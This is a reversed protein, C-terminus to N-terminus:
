NRTYRSISFHTSGFRAARTYYTKQKGRMEQSFNTIEHAAPMKLEFKIFEHKKEAVSKWQQHMMDRTTGREMPNRRGQSDILFSSEHINSQPEDDKSASRDLADITNTAQPAPRQFIVVVQREGEEVAIRVVHGNPFRRPDLTPM